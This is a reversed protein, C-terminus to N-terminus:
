KAILICGTSSLVRTCNIVADMYGIQCWRLLLLHLLQVLFLLLLLLFLLLPTVVRCDCEISVALTNWTYCESVRSHLSLGVLQAHLPDGRGGRHLPV